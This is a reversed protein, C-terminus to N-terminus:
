FLAFCHLSSVSEAFHIKSHPARPKQVVCVKSVMLSESTILINSEKYYWVNDLLCTILINLSIKRYNHYAIVIHSM